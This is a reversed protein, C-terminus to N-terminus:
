RADLGVEGALAVLEDIRRLDCGREFFASFLVDLV